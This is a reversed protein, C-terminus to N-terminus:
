VSKEGDIMMTWTDDLDSDCIKESNLLKDVLLLYYKYSQSKDMLALLDAALNPKEPNNYVKIMASAFEKETEESSQLDVISDCYSLLDVHPKITIVGDLKKAHKLLGTEISVVPLNTILSEVFTLPGGEFFASSVCVDAVSYFKEPTNSSGAYIVRGSLINIDIYDNINDMLNQEYIPGILVLKANPCKEVVMNFSRILSIQNKQHTISGVCLFVFDEKQIGLDDRLNEIEDESSSENFKSLEVGNPITFCKDKPIDLRTVSYEKAYDSVAIFIDTHEISTKFNNLEEENFWMYVNHIVQMTKIKMEKCVRLGKLSYHTMVLKACVEELLNKYALENYEMQYVDIGKQEASAGAAGVTGLVLILVNFGQSTFYTSLDIVVNELGGALFSDVQMILDYKKNIPKNTEQVLIQASQVIPTKNNKLTRWIKRLGRYVIGNPNLSSKVKNKCRTKFPLYHAFFNYVQNSGNFRFNKITEIIKFNHEAMLNREVANPTRLNVFDEFAVYKIGLTNFDGLNVTELIPVIGMAIYEILKTPCAVNNVVMDERLVFGFHVEKYIEFLENQDKAAIELNDSFLVHPDFQAIVEDPHPCYFKFRYSKITKSIAKVMKPVQQWKHTGGAYVVIPLCKGYRKDTTYNEIAPFIPLLIMDGKILERYKGYFYNQMSQTVSIILDSRSVAMEELKDYLVASYFDNHMRFEEPVVGHIDIAKNIFPIHFLFRNLGDNIRLVSHSYLNRGKLLLALVFLFVKLQRQKTSSYRLVIVKDAPRDYWQGNSFLEGVEVYVRWKDQFLSDIAKIRQFYGDKEREPYPYGGLFVMGKFKIVLKVFKLLKNVRSLKKMSSGSLQPQDENMGLLSANATIFEHINFNNIVLNHINQLLNDVKSKINAFEDGCFADDTKKNNALLKIENWDQRIASIDIKQTSVLLEPNIGLILQQDLAFLMNSLNIGEQTYHSLLVDLNKKYMELFYLQESNKNLSRIYFNVDFFFSEFPKEPRRQWKMDHKQELHARNRLANENFYNSPLAGFSGSGFHHMFVDRALVPMIGLEVARLCYDDDEYGGPFFVEDLFGIKTLASKSILVCFFTPDTSVYNGHWAGHWLQSFSNVIAFAKKSILGTDDICDAIPLDYNVPVCQNSDAKNTVCSIVDEDYGVLRDLWYDSVIVDSNLLCFHTIDSDKMLQNIGYNNGGSFGLNKDLRTLEWPLNSNKSLYQYFSKKIKDFEDNKSANDVLILSYEIDMKALQISGLTINVFDSANYSVIVIGVKKRDKNM